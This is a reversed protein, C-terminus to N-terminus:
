KKSSKEIMSLAFTLGGVVGQLEHYKGLYDRDDWLEDDKEADVEMKLIKKEEKQIERELKKLLEKM